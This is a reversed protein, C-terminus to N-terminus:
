TMTRIPSQVQGLLNGLRQGVVRDL